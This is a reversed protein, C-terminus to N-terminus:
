MIDDKLGRKDVQDVINRFPDIWTWSALVFLLLELNLQDSGRILYRYQDLVDKLFAM